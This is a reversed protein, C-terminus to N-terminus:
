DAVQIKIQQEAYYFDEETDIDLIQNERMVYLTVKGGLRNEYKELVCPKYIYISGNEVYQQNMDQRRPRCKYNYNISYAEGNKMEWLFKHTPSVSLLSDAEESKLQLIAREIDVSTRFPSTCQLFVILSIEVKSDLLLAQAHLLAAESTATDCALQVPRDIVKAGYEKAIAAIEKDDTTVYVDDIISVKLAAEITYAILPKGALLKINKRAVGKSGGRAPILCIIKKVKDM